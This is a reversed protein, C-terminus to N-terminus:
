HILQPSGSRAGCQDHCRVVDRPINTHIYRDPQTYRKDAEINGLVRRNLWYCTSCTCMPLAWQASVPSSAELISELLKPLEQCLSKAANVSDTYLSSSSGTARYSASSWFAVVHVDTVDRCSISGRHHLAILFGVRASQQWWSVLDVLRPLEQFVLKFTFAQKSRQCLCQREAIGHSDVSPSSSVDLSSLKRTYARALSCQLCNCQLFLM